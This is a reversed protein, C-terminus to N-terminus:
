YHPADLQKESMHTTTTTTTTAYRHCRRTQRITLLPFPPRNRTTIHCRSAVRMIVARGLQESIMTTKKPSDFREVVTKTERISAVVTMGDLSYCVLSMWRLSPSSPVM